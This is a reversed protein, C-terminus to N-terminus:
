PRPGYPYRELLPWPQDEEAVDLPRSLWSALARLLRATRSPGRPRVPEPLRARHAEHLLERQHLKAIELDLLMIM